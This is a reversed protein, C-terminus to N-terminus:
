EFTVVIDLQVKFSEGAALVHTGSDVGQEHLNFADNANTVPEVAFYPADPNYFVLFRCKDSAELSLKIGADQWHIISNGSLGSLCCDIRQLPDLIRPKRFDLAQPLKQAPGIPLCDGDTDPFVDTVPLTLIASSGNIKRNFYPHWGLGAPMPEQSQNELELISSLKNGEVHQSIRAGIQWPWNIDPHDKSAIDCTLSSASAHTVRWPLKRLAGHIAHNSANALQYQRENFNFKGNRIRNSYPIMHFSAASLESSVAPNNNSTSDHRKTDRCDPVVAHWQDDNRVQAALWQVGCSPDSWLRWFQSEILHM